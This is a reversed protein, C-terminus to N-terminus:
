DLSVLLRALRDPDIDPDSRPSVLDTAIVRVGLSAVRELDMTRAYVAPDHHIIVRDVLSSAPIEDESDRRLFRIIEDVAGGISMGLEEPDRTTNPVYIKPCPNDRIACGVGRPLLNAVISTYFSGMAYCISDAGSILSAVSDCIRSVAARGSDDRGILELDAIPSPIPSVEKGTIAHQGTVVEGNALRARLHLDESVTPRVIGRAAVLGSFLDIVAEIDRGEDLYGAALVLNGVSAGRLDFGDPMRAAFARLQFPILQRLPAPVSTVLDDVGDLLRRLEEALKTPDADTPLRHSLLRYIESNGVISEDALALLRNRIDGVSLMEFADRIKASSGGSDFPTVLHISNHTYLKLRRTLPRLASGGSFFLPRSGVEPRVCRRDVEIDDSRPPNEEPDGRTRM